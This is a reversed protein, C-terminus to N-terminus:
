SISSGQNLRRLNFGVSLINKRHEKIKKSTLFLESLSEKRYIKGPIYKPSAIASLLIINNEDNKNKIIM